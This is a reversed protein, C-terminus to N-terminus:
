DHGHGHGHGHGHEERREAKRERREAKEHEKWDRREAKAEAKRWHKYQGPPLRVLGPPVRRPQVFVFAARPGRARYWGADRRVWYYGGTFFVEEDYNEVVQIGPQITVLPPAVPLAVQFRVDVQARAAAPVLSVVLASLLILRNM